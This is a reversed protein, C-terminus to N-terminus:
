AAKRKMRDIIRMALTHYIPEPCVVRSVATGILASMMIPLLMGSTASKTMESVIIFCTIPSQVVGSFYAVTGLLVIASAYESPFIHTLMDGLGAGVSLSPAFIGGPIGSLYSLLTAILKALGYYIPIDHHTDNLLMIAEHQGSGFILGHTLVGLVAVAFGIVGAVIIPHKSTIKFLAKSGALLLRAFIGGMLGCIVAVLIIVWWGSLPITASSAGFYAYNGMIELSVFGCLVVTAIITGSVGKDYSGALEEIAFVIGALPANFAAAIGAAGGALLLGKETDEKNFRDLKGLFQMLSASLQITPGERGISAGALFGFATLLFKGLAIKLSVLKRRRAESKLHLAAMVQPIGSGEAGSFYNKLLYIIIMFGIPTVFLPWYPHDVIMREFGHNIGDCVYAFLVCILGVIIGGGWFILKRRWLAVSMLKRSESLIQEKQLVKLNFKM